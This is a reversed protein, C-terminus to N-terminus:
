STTSFTAATAYIATLLVFALTLLQYAVRMWAYKLYSKADFVFFQVALRLGWFIAIFACLGRALPVGSSLERSYALSLVGFAIITLVIFVGHVWFLQRVLKPLKALESRWDLVGPVLSSALLLCCHLAGGFLILWRLNDTTLNMM